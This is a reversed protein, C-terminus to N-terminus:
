GNVSVFFAAAAAVAGALQLVSAGAVHRDGAEPSAPIAAAGAIPAVVMSGGAPAVQPPPALSAAGDLGTVAQREDGRHPVACRAARHDTAPSTAALGGRDGGGGVAAAHRGKSTPPPPAAPHCADATESWEAVAAGRVGPRPARNRHGDSAPPPPASAVDSGGAAVPPAAGGPVAGRSADQCGAAATTAAAAASVSGAREATPVAASLAMNGHREAAARAAAAVVVVAQAAPPATGAARGSM